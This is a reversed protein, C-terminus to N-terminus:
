FIDLSFYYKGFCFHVIFLVNIKKLTTRKMNLMRIGPFKKNTLPGKRIHLPVMTNREMDEVDEFRVVLM